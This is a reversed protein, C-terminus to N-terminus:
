RTWLAALALAFAALAALTLQVRLRGYWSPAQGSRSLALDALGAILHTLALLLIALAPTKYLCAGIWGLLAPIIAKALANARAAGPLSIALGWRVGGLFSLILAGYILFPLIASNLPAEQFWLAAAGAAFPLVGAWGLVLAAFPIAQEEGVPKESM